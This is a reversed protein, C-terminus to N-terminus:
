YKNVHRFMVEVLKIRRGRGAGGGHMAIGWGTFVAREGQGLEHRKRWQGLEMAEFGKSKYVSLGQRARRGSLADEEM